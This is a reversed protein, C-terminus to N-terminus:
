QKLVLDVYDVENGFYLSTDNRYFGFFSFAHVFNLVQRYKVFFGCVRLWSPIPSAEEMWGNTRPPQWLLTGRQPLQFPLRKNERAEPPRFPGAFGDGPSAGEAAERRPACPGDERRTKAPDERQAETDGDGRRILVGPASVGSSRDIM